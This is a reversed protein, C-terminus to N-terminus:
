LQPLHKMTIKPWERDLDAAYQGARFILLRVADEVWEKERDALLQPLRGSVWKRATTEDGSTSTLRSLEKLVNRSVHYRSAAEKVGGVGYTFKTLCTYAMPLLRDRGQLYGEYLTWMVEVDSSMAFSEPLEPFQLERVVEWRVASGIKPAARAAAYIPPPDRNVVEAEEFSFKMGTGMPRVAEYIEWPRLYGEVVERAEDERAHHDKM